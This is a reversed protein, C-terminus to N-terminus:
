TMSPFDLQLTITNAIRADFSMEQLVDRMAQATYTFGQAEVDEVIREAMKHADSLKM